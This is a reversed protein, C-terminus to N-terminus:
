LIKFMLKLVIKKIKPLEHTTANSLSIDNLYNTFLWLEKKDLVPNDFFNNSLCLTKMM